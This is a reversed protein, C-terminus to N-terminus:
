CMYKAFKIYTASYQAFCSSPFYSLFFLIKPVGERHLRKVPLRGNFVTVHAKGPFDDNNGRGDKKWWEGEKVPNIM